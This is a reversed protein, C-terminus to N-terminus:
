RIRRKRGAPTESQRQYAARLGVALQSAAAVATLREALHPSPAPPSQESLTAYSGRWTRRRHAARDARAAAEDAVPPMAPFVPAGVSQLLRMATELSVNPRKGREFESVLRPSVGVQAALSVVTVGRAQRHTRLLAALRNVVEHPSSM